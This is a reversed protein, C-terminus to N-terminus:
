AEEPGSGGILAIPRNEDASWRVLKSTESTVFSSFIIYLEGDKYYYDYDKFGEYNYNVELEERTSVQLNQAKMEEFLFDLLRSHFTDFDEGIFYSIDLKEGTKLCFTSGHDSFFNVGGLFWQSIQHVSFFDKDNNSIETTLRNAYVSHYKGNPCNVAREMTESLFRQADQNSFFDENAKLFDGNIKEISEETVGLSETNTNLFLVPIDYSMEACLHSDVGQIVTSRKQIVTSIETEQEDEFDNTNGKVPSLEEMLIAETHAVASEEEMGRMGCSTTCILCIAVFIM